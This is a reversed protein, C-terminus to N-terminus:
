PTREKPSRVAHPQWQREISRLLMPYILAHRFPKIAAMYAKGFWGNPKTLETMQAHHGGGSDDALGDSRM